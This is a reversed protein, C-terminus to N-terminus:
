VIASAVAFSFNSIKFPFDRREGALFTQNVKAAKGV